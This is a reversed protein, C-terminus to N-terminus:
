VYIIYEIKEDNISDGESKWFMQFSTNFPCSLYGKGTCEHILYEGAVM